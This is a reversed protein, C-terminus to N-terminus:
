PVPTTTALDVGVAQRIRALATAQQGLSQHYGLELNLLTRYNRIARDFSVTNNVLSKLDAEVTQRAQPLITTEYLAVTQHSARAQEWLDRLLADLRLRIEAESAHAAAHARASEDVIADYKAHWIPLTTGVRLTVSDRGAGPMTADPADMVVWGIGFTLDPRRQLRAVEIGWRTATTRLRAAHLEPQSEDALQRLVDHSWDPFAPDISAPPMLPTSADRGALRNLEAQTSVLQQRFTLLREELSSRELTAMLVDGATAEGTAVRATATAVLAELQAADAETREIQKALVYLRYWNARLDGILRVRATHYMNEAALAEFCARQAQANLRGLWPIMQQLEVQALQRDPDLSMPPTFATVGVSPDPLKDAARARAWAAAAEQQLRDLEPNAAVAVLELTRLDSEALVISLGPESPQDAEASSRTSSASESEEDRDDPTITDSAHDL